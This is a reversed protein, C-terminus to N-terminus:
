AAKKLKAIEAKLITIEADMENMANWLVPTFRGYDLSYFSHSTDVDKVLEPMLDRVDQALFGIMRRSRDELVAEGSADIYGSHKDFIKADLARVADLGYPIPDVNKKLRSDSFTTWEVDAHGSGEADFIFRTTSNNAIVLLNGDTGVDGLGTGSRIASQLEIVGGGATSKTTHATGDLGAQVVFVGSTGADRFARLRVGGDSGSEKLMAIFTDAEALATMGHGVDSSKGAFFQDDNEAQSITLGITMNANTSENIFLNTDFRVDGADVRLAYNEDGETPASAIYLTAAIGITSSGGLNDTIDPESLYVTSAVTINEDTTQTAISPDIRLASLATTDGSAGTLTDGIRLLAGYTSAGGSTFNGILSLRVNNASAGGIAHPGTGSVTISTFTAAGADTITASAARVWASGDSVIISGASGFSLGDLDPIAALEALLDTFISEPFTTLGTASFTESYGYGDSGTFDSVSYTNGNLVVSM